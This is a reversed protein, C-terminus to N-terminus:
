RGWGWKEEHSGPAGPWFCCKTWALSLGEGIVAKAGASTAWWRDPEYDKPRAAMVGVQVSEGLAMRYVLWSRRAHVGASFVDVAELVVGNKRAWDRFVIASLFSRDQASAPAPVASIAVGALGHKRLHDFAREAYSPWPLFSQWSEIPGGTVVVREYGGRRFAAMAQDLEAEDLWGEVVLISAGRGDKAFAPQDPALFGYAVLACGVAAGATVVSLVATGWLSPLWVHRRRFLLSGLFRLRM